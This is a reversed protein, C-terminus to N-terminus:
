RPVPFSLCRFLGYSRGVRTGDLLQPQFGLEQFYSKWSEQYSTNLQRYSEPFGEAAFTPLLVTRDLIQGNTPSYFAGQWGNPSDTLYVPALMPLRDVKLGREELTAAQRDLFAQVQGGLWKEHGYDLQELARPEICPVMVRSPGVAMVFLDAHGTREGPMTPLVVIEDPARELARAFLEVVESPPRSANDRLLKDTVIVQRGANVQNGPEHLLPVSETTLWQGREQGPFRFFKQGPPGQVPVSTSGDYQSRTPNPSQFKVLKRSGDPLQVFIPRYDQMWVLNPDRSFGERPGQYGVSAQEVRGFGLQEMAASVFAPALDSALRHVVLAAVPAYDPVPGPGLTVQDPPDAAPTTALSPRSAMVFGPSVARIQMRDVIAAM